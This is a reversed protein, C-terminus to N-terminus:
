IIFKMLSNTFAMRVKVIIRKSVPKKFIQSDSLLCLIVFIKSGMSPFVAAVWTAYAKLSTAAM